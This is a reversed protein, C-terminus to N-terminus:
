QSGRTWASCIRTLSWSNPLTTLWKMSEAVRGLKRVQVFSYLGMGLSALSVLLLLGSNQM